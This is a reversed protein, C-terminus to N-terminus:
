EEKLFSSESITTIKKGDISLILDRRRKSVIEIASLIGEERAIEPTDFNEKSAGLDDANLCINLNENLNTLTYYFCLAIEDGEEVNKYPLVAVHLKHEERLWDIAQQWLPASIRDNKLQTNNRDGVLVYDNKKFNNLDSLHYYAYLCEEDFGLERLKLVIEYTVFQKKMVIGGNSNPEM